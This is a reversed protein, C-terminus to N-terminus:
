LTLPSNAITFAAAWLPQISSRRTARSISVPILRAPASMIRVYKARSAATQSFHTKGEYGSTEPKQFSQFVQSSISQDVRGSSRIHLAKVEVGGVLRDL